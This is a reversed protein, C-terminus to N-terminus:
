MRQDFLEYRGKGQQKARYLALDANHLLRESRDQPSDSVCIGISATVRVEQGEERFPERLSEVIREAVRLADSPNRVHELLVTFEDGGFRALTDESRLQERLRKTIAMLLRDGREHGLSDNVVKFDDLDIFFVAVRTELRGAQLLAHELRDLFLTRNAMGTLPDHLARYRLKEELTKRAAIEKKLERWRRWAYVGFAFGVIIPAFVLEHLQWPEFIRAFGVFADFADFYVALVVGLFSLAAIVVLDKFATARRDDTM